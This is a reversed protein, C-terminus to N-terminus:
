KSNAEGDTGKKLDSDADALLRKLIDDVSEENREAKPVEVKDTSTEFPPPPVEFIRKRTPPLETEDESSPTPAMPTSAAKDRRKKDEQQQVRKLVLLMERFGGVVGVLFLIPLWYSTKFHSDLLYGAGAGAIICGVLTFGITYAEWGSSGMAQTRMLFPVRSPKAGQPKSNDDSPM